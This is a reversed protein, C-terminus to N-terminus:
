ILARVQERAGLAAAGETAVSRLEDHEMAVLPRRYTLLGLRDIFSDLCTEPLPSDPSLAADIACEGAVRQLHADDQTIADAVTQAVNFYGEVHELSIRSDLGRFLLSRSDEPMAQLKAEALVAVDPVGLLRLLERVTNRYQVTALQSLARVAGAATCDAPPNGNPGPPVPSGDPFTDSTEASTDQGTSSSEDDTASGPETPNSAPAAAGDPLRLTGGDASQQRGDSQGAGMNDADSVEGACGSALSVTLWLLAQLWGQY